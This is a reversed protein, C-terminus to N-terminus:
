SRESRMWRAMSLREPLNISSNATTTSTQRAKRNWRRDESTTTMVRGMAMRTAKITICRCPILALMM